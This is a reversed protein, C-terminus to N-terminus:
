IDSLPLVTKIVPADRPIPFAIARRKALSPAFTAMAALVVWGCGLYRRGRGVGGEAEMWGKGGGGGERKREKEREEKDGKKEEEEEEKWRAGGGGRLSSPVIKV